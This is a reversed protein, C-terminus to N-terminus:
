SQGVPQVEGGVLEIDIELRQRELTHLRPDLSVGDTRSGVEVVVVVAFQGEYPRRAGPFASHGGDGRVGCSFTEGSM